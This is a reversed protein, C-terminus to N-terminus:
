VPQAVGSALTESCGAAEMKLNHRRSTNHYSVLTESYRAEEM